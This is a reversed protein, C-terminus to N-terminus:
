AMACSARPTIFCWTPRRLRWTLASALGLDNSLLARVPQLEDLHEQVFQDPMENDEILAPMGAPLLAVLRWHGPRADGVVDVPVAQLLNALIWGLLVIFTLSLNFMEAHSNGYLPRTIQLYILAVMATM